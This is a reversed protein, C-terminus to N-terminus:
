NDLVPDVEIPTTVMTSGLVLNSNMSTTLSQDGPDVGLVNMSYTLSGGPQPPTTTVVLDGTPPGTIQAGATGSLNEAGVTLGLGAPADQMASVDYAYSLDEVGPDYGLWAQFARAGAASPDGFVHVEWQVVIWHHVGDTLGAVTVGSAGSGDLDTWYPALVGNPPTPDPFHQPHSSIDQASTAGGISIYGNSDVGVRTYTKGGFVYAPTNFNLTQEDGIPHPTFGFLDLPLYGGAPSTGSAIAPVADKAGDLVSPGVMARRRVPGVDAGTADTIRLGDSVMSTATIAATNLSLNTATVTCNTTGGVSVTASSCSQALSVDGQRNFWAVPLHLAPADPSLVRVEGFQQGTGTSTVTIRFTRSGGTPITGNDPSVSINAGDPATTHTEFQYPAGSVNRATRQVTITGPMTPLNVSPINVSSALLPDSGLAAMQTASDEFVLGARGAKTLDVRGAGDDFPDAPTTLDEKVVDTEATTMLASKIAGPGWDPHLAKLLIASGAIHPAAMSTGAIAQFDQGPPGGAIEDPTPTNGALVQVGPATIDPKLFEGGPGRSSFAAMVDGQGDAKVGAPWSATAGPHTAMFALFATGDALQITPLFHTDSETDALAPNYLIM